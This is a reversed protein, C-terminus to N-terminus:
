CEDPQNPAAAQSNVPPRPISKPLMFAVEYGAPKWDGFPTYIQVAKHLYTVSWCHRFTGLACVSVSAPTHLCLPSDSCGPHSNVCIGKKQRETKKKNKEKLLPKITPWNFLWCCFYQSEWHFNIYLVFLMFFLHYESSLCMTLNYLKTWVCNESMFDKKRCFVPNLLTLINVLALAQGCLLLKKEGSRTTYPWFM